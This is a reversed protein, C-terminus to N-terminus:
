VPHLMETLINIVTSAPRHHSATEGDVVSTSEIWISGVFEEGEALCETEDPHAAHWRQERERQDLQHIPELEDLLEQVRNEQERDIFSITYCDKHIHDDCSSGQSAPEEQECIAIVRTRM